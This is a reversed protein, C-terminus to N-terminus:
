KIYVLKQLQHSKDLIFINNEKQAGIKEEAITAVAM